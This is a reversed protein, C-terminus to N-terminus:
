REMDLKVKAEKVLGHLHVTTLVRQELDNTDVQGDVASSRSSTGRHGVCARM